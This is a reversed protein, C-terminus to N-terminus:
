MPLVLGVSPRPGDSNHHQQSKEIKL